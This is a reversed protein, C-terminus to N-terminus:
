RVRGSVPAGQQRLSLIATISSTLATRCPCGAVGSRPTCLHPQAGAGPPAVQALRGAGVCGARGCTHM